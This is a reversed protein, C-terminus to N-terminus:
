PPDHLSSFLFTIIVKINSFWLRNENLTYLFVSYNYGIYVAVLLGTLLSIRYLLVSQEATGARARHTRKHRTHGNIGNVRGNSKSKGNAHGNTYPHAGGNIQAHKGNPLQKQHNVQGNQQVKGNHLRTTHGNQLKNTGKQSDSSKCKGNQQQQKHKRSM